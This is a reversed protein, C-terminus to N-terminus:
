YSMLTQKGYLNIQLWNDVVSLLCNTLFSMIKMMQYLIKDQM